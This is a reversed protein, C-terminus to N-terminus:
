CAAPQCRDKNELVARGEVDLVTENVPIGVADHKRGGGRGAKKDYVTSDSIVSGTSNFSSNVNFGGRSDLGNDCDVM